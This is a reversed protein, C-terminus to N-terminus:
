FELNLFWSPYGAGVAHTSSYGTVIHPDWVDVHYNIALFSIYWQFAFSSHRGGTESKNRRSLTRGTLDFQLRSIACLLYWYTDRSCNSRTSFHHKATAIKKLPLQFVPTKSRANGVYYSHSTFITIRRVSSTHASQRTDSKLTNLSLKM